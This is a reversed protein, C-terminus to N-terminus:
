GSRGRASTVEPEQLGNCERGAAGEQQQGITEAVSAVRTSLVAAEKEVLSVDSEFDVATLDEDRNVVCYGGEKLNMSMMELNADKVPVRDQPPM